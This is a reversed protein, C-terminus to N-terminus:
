SRAKWGTASSAVGGAWMRTCSLRARGWVRYGTWVGSAGVMSGVRVRSDAFVDDKLCSAWHTSIRGARSRHALVGTGM